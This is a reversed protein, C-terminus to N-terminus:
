ALLCQEVGRIAGEVGSGHWALILPDTNNGKANYYCNFRATLEFHKLNNIYAGIVYQEETPRIPHPGTQWVQEIFARTKETVRFFMVGANYYDFVNRVAAFDYGDPIVAELEFARRILVDTDLYLIQEGIPASALLRRLWYVKLWTASWSVPFDKPRGQYHEHRCHPFLKAHHIGTLQQLYEYREGIACTTIIM